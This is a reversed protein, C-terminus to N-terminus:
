LVPALPNRRGLFPCARADDEVHHREAEVVRTADRLHDGVGFETAEM